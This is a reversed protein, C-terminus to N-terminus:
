TFVPAALHQSCLWLSWGSRGSGWAPLAGVARVAAGLHPKPASGWCVGGGEPLVSGQELLSSQRQWLSSGSVM